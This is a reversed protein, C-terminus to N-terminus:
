LAGGVSQIWCPSLMLASLTVLTAKLAISMASEQRERFKLCGRFLPAPLNLVAALRRATNVRLPKNGGGGLMSVPCPCVGSAIRAHTYSYAGFLIRPMFFGCNIPHPCGSVPLKQREPSLTHRCPKILTLGHLLPHHLTM